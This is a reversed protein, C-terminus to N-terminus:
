FVVFCIVFISRSPDFLPFVLHFSTTLFSTFRDFPLLLSACIMLAILFSGFALLLNEFHGFFFGFPVLLSGFSAMPDWLPALLSGVPALLRGFHM